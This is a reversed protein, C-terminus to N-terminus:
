GRGRYRASSSTAACHDEATARNLSIVLAELYPVQVLEALIGRLAPRDMESPIMPIVLAVPFRKSLALIHGELDELPRAVLRPLATVSGIQHFDSM